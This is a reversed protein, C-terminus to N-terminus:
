MLFVFQYKQLSKIDINVYWFHASPQINGPERQWLYRTWINLRFSDTRETEGIYM